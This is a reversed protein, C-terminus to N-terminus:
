TLRGEATSLRPRSVDPAATVAPTEQASRNGLARLRRTTRRLARRLRFEVYNRTWHMRSSPSRALRRSARVAGLLSDTAVIDVPGFALAAPSPLPPIPTQPRRVARKQLHIYAAESVIEGTTSDLELCRGDQWAFVTDDRVRRSRNARLRYSPVYIDFYVPETFSTLGAAQTLANWGGFEDYSIHTDTTFVERAPRIGALERQFLRALEPTNRVLSLHGLRLIRDVGSEVAARVHSWVDGWVVDVDGYAWYEYPQLEDAFVLGYAPKFDCLKYANSLAVPYGVAEGIRDRVQSLTTHHVVVNSPTTGLDQDTFLHWDFQANRGMTHMTLPWYVPLPGFYPIVVGVRARSRAQPAPSAAQPVAATDM